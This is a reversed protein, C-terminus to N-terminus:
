GAGQWTVAIEDTAHFTDRITDVDFYGVKKQSTATATNTPAATNTATSQTQSQSSNTPTATNQNPESKKGCGNLLVICIVSFIVLIVKAFSSTKANLNM